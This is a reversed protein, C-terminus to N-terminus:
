RVSCKYYYANSDVRADNGKLLEEVIDMAM